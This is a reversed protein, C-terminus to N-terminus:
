HNVKTSLLPMLLDYYELGGYLSTIVFSSGNKDINQM